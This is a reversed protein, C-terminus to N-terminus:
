WLKPNSGDGPDGCVACEDLMRLGNAFRSRPGHQYLTAVVREGCVRCRVLAGMAYAGLCSCFAILTAQINFTHIGFQSWLAFSGIVIGFGGLTWMARLKWIQRSRRLWGHENSSPM